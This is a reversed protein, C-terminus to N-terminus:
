SKRRTAGLTGGLVILVLFAGALIIGNTEDAQSAAAPSPTPTATLQEALPTATQAPTQGATQHWTLGTLALGVAIAALIILLRFSGTKIKKRLQPSNSIPSTSM